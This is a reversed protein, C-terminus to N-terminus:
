RAREFTVLTEGNEALLKLVGEEVKYGRASNLAGLYARELGDLTPICAMRTTAMAGFSIKKASITPKGAIQNCGITSAFRGNATFEAQTKAIDFADVGIVAVVRWKGILSPPAALSSGAVFSALLVIAPSLIRM